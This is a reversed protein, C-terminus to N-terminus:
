VYEIYAETNLVSAITQLMLEEPIPLETKYEKKIEIKYEKESFPPIYVTTVNEVPIPDILNEVLRKPDKTKELFRVTKQAVEEIKNFIPEKSLIPIDKRETVIIVVDGLDLVSYISINKLDKHSRELKVLEKSVEIDIDSIKGERYLKKCKRCLTNTQADITCIPLKM